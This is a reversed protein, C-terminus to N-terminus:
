AKKRLGAANRARSPTLGFAELAHQVCARATREASSGSLARPSGRHKEIAAAAKAILDARPTAYAITGTPLPVVCGSVSKRLERSVMLGHAMREAIVDSKARAALMARVEVVLKAGDDSVASRRKSKRSADLASRAGKAIKELATGNGHTVLEQIAAAIDLADVIASPFPAPPAMPFAAVGGGRHGIAVQQLAMWLLAPADEVAAGEVQLAELLKALAHPKVVTAM